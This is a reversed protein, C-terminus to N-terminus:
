PRQMPLHVVASTFSNTVLKKAFKYFCCCFWSLKRRQHFHARSPLSPGSRAWRISIPRCIGPCLAKKGVQCSAMIESTLWSLGRTGESTSANRMFVKVKRLPWHPCYHATLRSLVGPKLSSAVETTEHIQSVTTNIPSQSPPRQTHPKAVSHKHFLLWGSITRM